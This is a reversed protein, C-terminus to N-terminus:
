HQYLAQNPWFVKFDATPINHRRMFHKSFAKSGEIMAAEKSPGFVPIGVKMFLSKIGDVM